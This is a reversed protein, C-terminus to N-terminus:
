ATKTERRGIRLAVAAGSVEVCDMSGDTDSFTSSFPIPSIPISDRFIIDFVIRESEGKFGGSDTKRECGCHSRRNVGHDISRRMQAPNDPAPAMTSLPAM